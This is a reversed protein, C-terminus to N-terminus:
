SEIFEFFVQNFAELEDYFVGHGSEEFTYLLNNKIQDHLVIAFEYPCILDEKGHFIGTVVEINSLEARLDEDRLSIATQITGIGSAEYSILKFWEKIEDSHSLNFLLKGFNSAMLPRDKYAQEILKNVEDPEMGYPYNERKVFSPAAAGLLALKKVGYGKYLTMYRIAIAGGMSFGALVFDKLGLCKVVTYVDTALDNYTYGWAPADSKGFGRLDISVVRYGLHPLINMQYEFIEGSLPWGHIFVIAKNAEQNTDNVAIAVNPEVNVYIMLITGKEKIM